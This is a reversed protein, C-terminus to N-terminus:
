SKNHDKRKRKLADLQRKLYEREEEFTMKSIDIGLNDRIERMLKVINPKNITTEM